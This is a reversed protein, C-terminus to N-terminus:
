SLDRIDCLSHFIYLLLDEAPFISLSSTYTFFLAGFLAKQIYEVFEDKPIGLVDILMQDLEEGFPQFRGGPLRGTMKFGSKQGSGSSTLFEWRGPMM